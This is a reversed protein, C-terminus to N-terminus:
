APVVPMKEKRLKAMTQEDVNLHGQVLERPTLALWQDLSVDAYYSSKFIELFRLTTDGTNEVYHGMAFPVFGVDGARYDFKARMARRQLFVWALRATSTTSGNTQTRIGICKM